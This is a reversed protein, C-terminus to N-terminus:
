LYKTMVLCLSPDKALDQKMEQKPTHVFTPSETRDRNLEFLTEHMTEMDNAFLHERKYQTRRSFKKENPWRMKSPNQILWKLWGATPPLAHEFCNELDVSNLGLQKLTFDSYPRTQISHDSISEAKTALYKEYASDCLNLITSLWESSKRHILQHFVPRVRTISSNYPKLKM